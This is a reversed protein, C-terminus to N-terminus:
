SCSPFEVRCPRRLPASGLVHMARRGWLTGGVAWLVGPRSSAAPSRPVLRMGPHLGAAGHAAQHVRCRNLLRGAGSVRRSKGECVRECVSASKRGAGGAAPEARGPERLAGVAGQLRRLLPRTGSPDWPLFPCEAGLPCVAGPPCVAGLPCVTQPTCYCGSTSSFAHSAPFAGRQLGTCCLRCPEVASGMMPGQVVPSHQAQPHKQVSSNGGCVTCLERLGAGLLVPAPHAAGWCRSAWPHGCGLCLRDAAFRRSPSM